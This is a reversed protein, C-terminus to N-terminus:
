FTFMGPLPLVSGSIYDSDMEMNKDHSYKTDAIDVRATQIAKVLAMTKSLEAAYVARKSNVIGASVVKGKLFDKLDVTMMLIKKIESPALATNTEKIKAAINSVYPAAQSTGSVSLYENGPVASVIAVGPAAVDVNKIGFNSFRALSFGGMTAAVSISNDARINTPSSPYEDNDTGDNGAAFVFLTKPAAAVMHQGERILQDMFSKALIDAQEETPEKGALSKFLLEAIMRAQAYGTGFSGNAVDAKLDGVYFAITELQKMQQKALQGLGAKILMMMLDDGEANDDKDQLLEMLKEQGPLKVETPILKVAMLKSNSVGKISIGAVHTGHMFNGYVQLNKLFAEDEVKARMWAIEADTATGMMTRGQIDFFRRVDPTLRNLYQYDIVLNNNEAFNWGYWDDTYGNGDEDIDSNNIEGPNTWAFAAIDKHLMDTGSDIIAVTAARSSAFAALTLLAALYKLM